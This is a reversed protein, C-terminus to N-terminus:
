SSLFIVSLLMAIVFTSFVFAIITQGTVVSRGVTTLITVDSSSFTTAVQASLYFYDLFVPPATGPFGLSEATANLRAYHVAYSYVTVIWSCGVVLFALVNAVVSDLLGPTLWVAAVAIMALVSWHANATPGGGGLSAEIRQARRTPTTARLWDRLEGATAHRFTVHTLVLYALSYFIWFAFSTVVVSGWTFGFPRVAHYVGFAVATPVVAIGLAALNRRADWALPPTPSATTAAPDATM